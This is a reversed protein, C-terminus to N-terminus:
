CSVLPCSPKKNCLIRRFVCLSINSSNVLQTVYLCFEVRVKSITTFKPLDLNSSYRYSPFRAHSQNRPQFNSIPFHTPTSILIPQTVPLPMIVLANFEPAKKQIPVIYPGEVSSLFIPLDLCQGCHDQILASQYTSLFDSPKQQTATLFSACRGDHSAEIEVHGDAGICLMMTPLPGQSAFISILLWVLLVATKNFAHFLSKMFDMWGKEIFLRSYLVFTSNFPALVSIDLMVSRSRPAIDTSIECIPLPFGRHIPNLAVQPQGGTPRNELISLNTDLYSSRGVM